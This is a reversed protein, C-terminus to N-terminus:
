SRPAEPTLLRTLSEQLVAAARARGLRQDRRLLQYAEFSCVVDAGAVVSAAVAPDLRSLEDAFLREIQHRLFSRAIRLQAAILPQFPERLRSMVGVTGMADFMRLRQEVIATIRETLTASPSVDLDLAPRVRDLQRTIAARVLDDLDDFHRFLSRPSLGAREAIEESSPALNGEEYLDVMAEVMAARNRQRRLTRGDVVPDAETATV